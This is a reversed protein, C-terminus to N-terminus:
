FEIKGDGVSTSVTPLGLRRLEDNRAPLRDPMKKVENVVNAFYERERAQREVLRNVYTDYSGVGDALYERLEIKMWRVIAKLEAVERREGESTVIESSFITGFSAAVAHREAASTSKVLAGPQAFRALFREGPHLFVDSYESKELSAMFAPEGYIQHRPQVQLSRDAVQARRADFVMSVAVLVIVSLIVIAIWRKGKGFLKNFLGPAEEVRSPRVGRERLMRYAEDRTVADIVGSRLENASTRYQYNFKM